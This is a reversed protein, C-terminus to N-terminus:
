EKLNEIRNLAENIEGLLYYSEVGFARANKVMKRDNSILISSTLKATAIFYSDVARPHVKEAIELTFEFISDESIIEFDSILDIIEDKTIRIGLRGAVSLLEVLFIKPVYVILGGIEALFKNAIKYREENKEFLSDVFVSTDIVIM